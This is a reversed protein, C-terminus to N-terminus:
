GSQRSPFDAVYVDGDRLIAGGFGADGGEFFRFNSSGIEGGVTFRLACLLM